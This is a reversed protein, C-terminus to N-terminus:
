ASGKPHLVAQMAEMIEKVEPDDEEGALIKAVDPAKIPMRGIFKPEGSIHVAGGPLKTIKLKSKITM